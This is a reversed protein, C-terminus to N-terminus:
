MFNPNGLIFIDKNPWIDNTCVVMAVLEKNENFLLGWTLVLLFRSFFFISIPGLPSSVM